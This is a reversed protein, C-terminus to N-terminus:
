AAPGITWELVLFAGLGDPDTLAAAENIRSRAALAKLDGLHAREEWVARGEAVLEELGWAALLEAQTTVEPTGPLQDVAVDVTIDRRMPDEYPDEGRDHGAYTRLWTRGALEATTRVGYDLCLLRGAGLRELADTVWRAAREHVPFRGEGVVEAADIVQPPVTREVDADPVRELVESARADDIEVHVEYWSGGRHEVIRVPLNDLLENAVVVGRLVREPWTSRVEVRGDLLEEARERLGASQEVVVHRMADRCRPEARQVAAALAGRGGGVEVVDFSDPEGLSAWVADIWRALVAGFLPGVEPSTLFDGGRAGAGTSTAYFGHEPDYLCRDQYEDFRLRV